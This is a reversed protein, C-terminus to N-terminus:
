SRHCMNRVYTPWCTENSILCINSISVYITNRVAVYPNKTKALLFLTLIMHILSESSFWKNMHLSSISICGNKGLNGLVSAAQMVEQLYWTERWSCEHIPAKLFWDLQWQRQSSPGRDLNLSARGVSVWVTNEEETWVVWPVYLLAFSPKREGMLICVDAPLQLSHAGPLASAIKTQACAALSVWHLFLVWSREAKAERLISADNDRCLNDNPAEKLFIKFPM